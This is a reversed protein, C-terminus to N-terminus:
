RTPAADTTDDLDASALAVALAFHRVARLCREAATSPDRLSRVGNLALVETTMACDVTEDLIEESRM